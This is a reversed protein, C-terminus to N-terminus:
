KSHAPLAFRRRRKPQIKLSLICLPTASRGGRNQWRVGFLGSRHADFTTVDKNGSGETENHEDNSRKKASPCFHEL